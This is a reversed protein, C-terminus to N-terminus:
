IFNDKMPPEREPSFRKENKRDKERSNNGFPFQQQANM